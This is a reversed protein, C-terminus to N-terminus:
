DLGLLLAPNRRAMTDWESESMGAEAMRDHYAALGVTAPPNAAQGLDTALITSDVGVLRAAALVESANDYEIIGLYCREFFVGLGALRQQVELPMSVLPLEPHTVVIRKVGLTRARDVVAVTEAPALHGTALVADGEAILDLVPDLEAVTRGDRLLPVPVRSSTLKQIHASADLGAVFDLHNQASITPMWFVRGGVQLSTRVAEANLGGAATANLVLGGLVEIGPVHRMVLAARDSTPFHHNKLVIARMGAEAASRALEIDDQARAITDPASHVHTDIAGELPRKM